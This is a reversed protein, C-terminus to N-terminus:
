NKLLYKQRQSGGASTLFNELLNQLREEEGGEAVM